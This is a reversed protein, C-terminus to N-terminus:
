RWFFCLESQMYLMALKANNTLNVKCKPVNRLFYYIDFKEGGYIRKLFVHALLFEFYFNRKGKFIKIYVKGINATDILLQLISIIKKHKNNVWSCTPKFCYKQMIGYGHLPTLISLLIYYVAETLAGNQNISM